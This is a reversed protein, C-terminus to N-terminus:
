KLLDRAQNAREKKTREALDKQDELLSRVISILENFTELELMKQLIKDLELLIDDTLELAADVAEDSAAPDDLIKELATLQSELDNM